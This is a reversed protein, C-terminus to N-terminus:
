DGRTKDGRLIKEYRSNRLFWSPSVEIGKFKDGEKHVDCLIIIREKQCFKELERIDKVRIIEQVM